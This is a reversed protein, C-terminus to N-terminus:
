KVATTCKPCITPHDAHSGLEESYSWCRECKEGAAATVQVRLGEINESPWSDGSIGDALAVQSVIFIGALEAEYVRLFDLLDAPATITVRADLSHGITKAVRAVELAKSVEARVKMIREWREVLGDDKLEPQLAPFAALHVSEEHDGAPLAV